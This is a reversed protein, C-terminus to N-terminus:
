NSPHFADIKAPEGRPQVYQTACVAFTCTYDVGM